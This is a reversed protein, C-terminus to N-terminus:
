YSMRVHRIRRKPDDRCCEGTDLQLQPAISSELLEWMAAVAKQSPKKGRAQSTSKQLSPAGSLHLVAGNAGAEGPAGLVAGDAGAKDPGAPVLQMTQLDSTSTEAPVHQATHSDRGFEEASVHQAAPVSEAGAAPREHMGLSLSQQEHEKKDATSVCCQGEGSLSTAAHSSHPEVAESHTDQLSTEALATRQIQEAPQLSKRRTHMGHHRAMVHAFVVDAEMDSDSDDLLLEAERQKAATSNLQAISEGTCQQLM